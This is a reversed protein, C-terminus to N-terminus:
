TASAAEYKDCSPPSAIIVDETMLLRETVIAPWLVLTLRSSANQFLKRSIASPRSSVKYLRLRRYQHPSFIQLDRM